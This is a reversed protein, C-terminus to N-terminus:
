GRHNRSLILPIPVLISILFLISACSAMGLVPVLLAGTLIAGLGAGLHDAGDVMGAARVMDKSHYLNLALPFVVGVLLGAAVAMMFIILQGAVGAQSIVVLLPIAMGLLGLCLSAVGLCITHIMAKHSARQVLKKGVQAGLPLGLMFLAILFGIMQYVFGYLIQFSYVIMLELSVGLFGIAAVLILLNSGRLGRRKKGITFMFLLRVAMLLVLIGLAKMPTITEFINFFDDLHVGSYWGLIKNYYLSSLPHLDRNIGVGRNRELGKRLFATREEPYLSHFMYALHDPQVGSQRFRSVLLAPDMSVSKPSPSAFFLNETGPAIAIYPFVGKLTHYISATYRSVVGQLYNESATIKLALTGDATLIKEIDRFFDQTYFRNLLLTAPEPLHLFVLDFRETGEATRRVYLRGDMIVQNFRPDSVSKLYAAPLNQRILRIAAEDIEVSDLRSIDYKLLERALGSSVEGIVLIRQPGPHQCFLQAALVQNDYEEPFVASLQGNAYLSVQDDLRGVALNQYRSDCSTLLSNGSMGQWRVMTLKKEIHIGIGPFLLLVYMIGILLIVLRHKEKIPRAAAGLWLLLPLGCCVLSQLSSVRGALLFSFLLGACVAGLAESMYAHSMLAVPQDKERQGPSLLRPAMPFLFGVMFSCPVVLIATWGVVQPFPIYVGAPTGSILHLLRTLALSILPILAFWSGGVLLLTVPRAARRFLRGGLIAGLYIGLLWFSLIIGFVFENGLVVVMLERLLVTQTVLAFFGMVFYFTLIRSRSFQIKNQKM